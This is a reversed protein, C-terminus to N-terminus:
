TLIINSVKFYLSQNPVQRLIAVCGNISHAVIKSGKVAASDEGMINGPRNSGGDILMICSKRFAPDIVKPLSIVVEHYWQTRTVENELDVILM